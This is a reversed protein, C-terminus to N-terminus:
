APAAVRRPPLALRECLRAWARQVRRLTIRPGGRAPLAPESFLAGYTEASNRM